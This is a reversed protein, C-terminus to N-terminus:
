DILGFWHFFLRRRKWQVGFNFSIRPSNYQFLHQHCGKVTMQILKEKILFRHNRTITMRQSNNWISIQPQAQATIKTIKM